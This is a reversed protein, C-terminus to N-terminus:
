LARPVIAKGSQSGPDPPQDMSLSLSLWNVLLHGVGIRKYSTENPVDSIPDVILVHYKKTTANSVQQKDTGIIMCKTFPGQAYEDGDYYLSAESRSTGAPIQFDFAQAKIAVNDNQRSTRLWSAQDHALSAFPRTVNADNWDVERGRPKIFSIAGQFAMWSWTPPIKRSHMGRGIKKLSETGDARRWLLCRGWFTEFLGALSRTKFAVTLREMLGDIAIPRDEPHSFELRTYQQFLDLFLNIQEGVTRPLRITYDPFNPDGLFAIKDNKLKVLTECRIGHGCEWYTQTKTFYITRRALAREQLVWGRRSLPSDLVDREFDNTVPSVSIDGIKVCKSRSEQNHLFGDEASQASCAALVCYACNFTTQMRDAEESFDGDSGQLICLSDIWLYTCNLASTIAIANRFSLPIEDMPIKKKRQEFNKKTTIAKDPMCGWKHSLAVYRIKSLINKPLDATVVIKPKKANEVCILRTPLVHEHKSACLDRHNTDCENLWARLLKIFSELELPSPDRNSTLPLLARAATNKMAILRLCKQNTNKLVFDNGSRKLSVQQFDGYITPNRDKVAKYVLECLDCEDGEFKTTLTDMDFSIEAHPSSIDIAECGKCLEPEDCSFKPGKSMSEVISDEEPLIKWENNISDTYDRRHAIETGRRQTIPVSMGRANDVSLLSSGIIQSPSNTTSTVFCSLSMGTRDAGSFLYREDKNAHALIGSLQEKLDKANTRFGKTYFDSNPPLDIKLLRERVLKVLDGIAGDREPDHELIKEMWGTVAETLGYIGDNGKRWYPTACKEGATFGNARWFEDHSDHGYLLWLVAEFIVCGMSWIDFLRSIKGQAKEHNVKELDPPEYWRTRWLETEKTNRMITVNQHQQARGLDALKLVGLKTDDKGNIFRLINEPKIDGHRWNQSNPNGNVIPNAPDSSVVITPITENEDDEASDLDFVPLSSSDVSSVGVGLSNKKRNTDKQPPLAPSSPASSNRSHGPSQSGTSHMAELADALGYLQELVEKVLRRVKGVDPDNVQPLNNKAWFDLLTGGNAWELVLYYEHFKRDKTTRRFAAFAQIINSSKRHLHQHARVEREWEKKIDYGLDSIEKLKKLAVKLMKDPVNVKNQKSTLMEVCTVESFHGSSAPTNTKKFPLYRAMDFDYKFIEIEFTPVTFHLRNTKFFKLNMGKKWLKHDFCSEDFEDCELLKDNFQSAMLADMVERRDNPDSFVILLTAFTKKAHSLVYEVLLSADHGGGLASRITDEKFLRDYEDDPFYEVEIDIGITNNTLVKSIEDLLDVSNTSLPAPEFKERASRGEVPVDLSKHKSGVM